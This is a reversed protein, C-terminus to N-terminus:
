IVKPNFHAQLQKSLLNLPKSLNFVSLQSPYYSATLEQIISKDSPPIGHITNAIDDALRGSGAIVITPQGVSLNLRLDTLSIKGGNILITISPSQAALIAACHALWPSENGWNIGPILAFHTHHEELNTLERNKIDIALNLIHGPLKVKAKPAVGVLNFSGGIHRRAQGMMQIVGADTGGDFVTIKYAEAIPALVKTFLQAVRNRSEQSMNSAGGIVVMSPSPTTLGLADLSKAYTFTAPVDLVHATQGNAFKYRFVGTAKTSNKTM